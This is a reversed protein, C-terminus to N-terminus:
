RTRLSRRESARVAREVENALGVIFVETQRPRRRTLRRQQGTDRPWPSEPYAEPVVESGIGDKPEPPGPPHM